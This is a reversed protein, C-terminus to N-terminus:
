PSKNESKQGFYEVGGGKDIPGLLTSLQQPALVFAEKPLTSVWGFFDPADSTLRKGIILQTPKEQGEILINILLNCTAPELEHEPLYGGKIFRVLQWGALDKLFDEARAQNLVFGKPATKATWVGDAKRDLELTVPAKYLSKWGVLKLGRVRSPDFAFLKRDRLDTQFVLAASTPITFVAERDGLRAYISQKNETEKGFLYVHEQPKGDKMVVVTAKLPPANLGYHALDTDSPKETVWKEVRLQKLALLMNEVAATDAVKGALERPQQFRWVIKGNKTEGTEAKKAEKAEKEVEYTVGDRHLVFRTVDRSAELGEAFSPLDRDAYTLPGATVLDLLTEPVALLMTEEGTERRVVVTKKQKDVKGFTLKVTPKDSKLKPEAAAPKKEDPKAPGDNDKKPADKKNKPADPKTEKKEDNKAPEIGESWLSVVAKPKDLGLESDNSKPDPFDKVIRERATVAKLLRDIPQVDAKQVPRSPRYLQWGQAPGPRRLKFSGSANTIDIADVRSADVHTLDRNRYFSPNSLIHAVQELGKASVKVVHNENELRAYFKEGKDDAKNGVLLVVKNLEKKEKPDTPKVAPPASREREIEIRMHAPKDKELGYRALDTVDEAVFDNDKENKYDVNLAALSDLLGRIGSSFKVSSPAFPIPPMEYEAEGLAPKEFRWRGDDSKKLEVPAHKNDQFRVAQIDAAREALLERSRFAAVTKFLPVVQDQKSIAKDDLNDALLSNLHVLKVAMPENPRDSSTVYVVAGETGGVSKRGINLKWERDGKKFTVVAAPPDLDWDKLNSTMDAHELKRADLVQQVIRNVAAADVRLAHPQTMKWGQQDESRVFVLKASAPRLPAIEVHDIDTPRIRGRPDQTSPFVLTTDEAQTAGFWMVLALAILTLGLLGFLIYTTKFNM